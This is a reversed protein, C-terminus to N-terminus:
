SDYGPAGLLLATDARLDSNWFTAQSAWGLLPLEAGGEGGVKAQASTVVLTEKSETSDLGNSACTSVPNRDPRPVHLGLPGIRNRASNPACFNPPSRKLWTPVSVSWWFQRLAWKSADDAYQVSM